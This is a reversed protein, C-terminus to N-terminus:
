PEGRRSLPALRRSIDPPDLLEAAPGPYRRRWNPHEDITGPLNPQQELALADELPLLALESPTQAIFKVAADAVVPTEAPSPEEGEAANARRFARWLTQRDKTRAAREEEAAPALGCQARAEIDTGRWWGAVTPLDHTSTMAAAASWGQPPRFRGREREFWLVRMGYVGAEALRKDFGPPVTGLDEGIVMARHRHSELATLRMLDDIPYTLYAGESAEAGDPIVWLRLLGMAHDVRLGGAHRLCARLTAIFPAFGNASLARPSFTTLGWNQGKTNYLDPPAGIQLSMLIDKQSTWAHSGASSMGVALDAIVGIRMGAQRAERQAAALSRDALWQLFCHFSIERENQQAFRKIEPSRPDRLQQPWKHWDWAAPDASLNLAHLAEFRAHDELLAGGAARFKAFDTALPTAPNAQLDAASFDAFLARFISMKAGASQPWAILSRKELEAALAGSGANAAAQLFRAEGFLSRADAYLPNYFLRSSPSYPSFHKADAAFLAHTPSLALADAKIAAAKKALAIVGGMDGIGCDGASRLGYTQAALGWVREHPAIDAITHCRSPAVALTFRRQGFEVTHYGPTEIACLQAGRAAACLQLEAVTGDEQTVRARGRINQSIPLKIPEGVKATILPPLEPQDLQRRSHSVEEATACPLGLAALIRQLAATSVRHRKNAYDRWGVALGARRALEHIAAENM